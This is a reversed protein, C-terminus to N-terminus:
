PVSYRALYELDDADQRVVYISRAGFGAVRTRAPLVVRSALRGDAGILDYRTSDGAPTTRRVWLIGDPAFLAPRILFPPLFQPWRPPEAFRGRLRAREQDRWEDKHQESVRIREFPLPEGRVFAGAPMVFDVRYDDWRLIAIRGDRAVAWQDGVIFPVISTLLGRVPDIDAGRDRPSRTRLHGVRQPDASRRDWRMIPYSDLAVLGSASNGFTAGTAYLNGREDVRSPVFRTASIIGGHTADSSLHATSTFHGLQGDPQVYLLRTLGGDFIVASDGPLALVTVPGRYERPGAGNRGLRSSAGLQRDVRAVLRESGDVVIVSGDRLEHIASVQTFPEALETELRLAVNRVVPQAYASSAIASALLLPLGFTIRSGPTAM